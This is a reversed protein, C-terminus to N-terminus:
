PTVPKFRFEYKRGNREAVAYGWSENSCHKWSKLTESVNAGDPLPMANKASLCSHNGEQTFPAPDLNVGGTGVTVQLLKDTPKVMQFLHRDGSIITNIKEVPATRWAAFMMASSEPSDAAFKEGLENRCKTEYKKPKDKRLEECKELAFVPVHTTLWVTKKKQDKAWLGIHGFVDKIESSVGEGGDSATLANQVDPQYATASDAVILRHGQSLDLAYSASM